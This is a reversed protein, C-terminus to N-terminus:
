WDTITAASTPIRYDPEIKGVQKVGVVNGQIIGDDQKDAAVAEFTDESVRLGWKSALQDRGDEENQVRVPVVRGTASVAEVILYYNRADPNVDPVRWVGSIENPRSVIRIEYSQELNQRLADLQGLLTEAKQHDDAGLAVKTQALLQNAQRTAADSESIATIRAHAAAIKDPLVAQSRNEPLEVMYFWALWIVLGVALFGFFPKLWRGRSVYIRALRTSFNRPAPEYAFRNEELADVGASLAEDTVAIGQAEYIERLRAVLRQRRGKSDLERDVMLDRHRLTDVVDMAVMLDELPAPNAGVEAVTAM